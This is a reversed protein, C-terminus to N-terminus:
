LCGLGLSSTLTTRFPPLMEEGPDCPEADDCGDDQSQDVGKDHRGGIEGDEADEDEGAQSEVLM